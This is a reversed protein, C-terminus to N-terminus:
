FKVFSIVAGAAIAFGYPMKSKLTQSITHSEDTDAPAKNASAIVSKGMLKSFLSQLGVQYTIWCVALVGGAIVSYLGALLVGYPGLFSGVMGLLKVDGAGMKGLAYIPMFLSLGIILGLLSWVVSGTEAGFVTFDRTVWTSNILTGIFSGGFTLWNPIKQVKFDFWIAAALLGLMSLFLYEM